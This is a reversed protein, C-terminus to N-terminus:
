WYFEWYFSSISLVRKFFFLFPFSLLLLRLVESFFHCQPQDLITVGSSMQWLCVSLVTLCPVIEESLFGSILQPVQLCWFFSLFVVYFPYSFSLYVRLIIEMYLVIPLFCLHLNKESSYPIQIWWRAHWTQFSRGLPCTGLIGLESLLHPICGRPGCM